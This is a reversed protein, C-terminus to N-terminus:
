MSTMTAEVKQLVKEAGEKYQKRYSANDKIDNMTIIEDSFVDQLDRCLNDFQQDGLLNKVHMTKAYERLNNLTAANARNIKNNDNPDFKDVFSKLLNGMEGYMKKTVAGMEKQMQRQILTQDVAQLDKFMSPRACMDQSIEAWFANYADDPSIFYKAYANKVKGLGKIPDNIYPLLRDRFAERIVVREAELEPFVENWAKVVVSYGHQNMLGGVSVRDIEKQFGDLLQRFRKPIDRPYRAVTGNAMAGHEDQTTKTVDPDKRTCEIGHRSLSVKILEGVKDDLSQPTTVIGNGSQLQDKM